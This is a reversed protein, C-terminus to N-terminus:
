LRHLRNQRRGEPGFYASEPQLRGVMEQLAKPLSGDEIARSEAETDMKVKMMMRM